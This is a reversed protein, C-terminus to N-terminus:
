MNELQRVGRAARTSRGTGSNVRGEGYFHKKVYQEMRGIGEPKSRNLRTGYKTRVIHKGIKGVQNKIRLDFNTPAAPKTGGVNMANVPRGGTRGLSGITLIDSNQKQGPVYLPM